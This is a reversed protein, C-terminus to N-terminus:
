HADSSEKATRHNRRDASIVPFRRRFRRSRDSAGGKHPANRSKRSWIVEPVRRDDASEQFFHHSVMNPITVARDALSPMVSMLDRRTAESRLCVLCRGDREAAASSLPGVPPLRPRQHYTAHAASHCRPLARDSADTRPRAPFPTEALMVDIGRTDLRSTSLRTWAMLSSWALPMFVAVVALAPRSIRKRDCGRFRKRAAVERVACALSLGQISTPEFIGLQVCRGLVSRVVAWPPGFWGLMRRRASEFKHSPPAQQLSVVVKSLM